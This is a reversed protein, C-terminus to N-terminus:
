QGNYQSIFSRFQDAISLRPELELARIMYPIAEPIRGTNIYFIAQNAIVPAYEGFLENYKNFYEMTMDYDSLNISLSHLMNYTNKQKALLSEPQNKLYEYLQGLEETRGTQLYIEMLYFEGLYIGPSENSIAKRAWVEEQELDGLSKFLECAMLANALSNPWYNLAPTIINLAVLQQDTPRLAESISRGATIYAQNYVPNIPEWVTNRDLTKMIDNMRNFDRLWALDNVSILVFILGAAAIFAKNVGQKLNIAFTNLELDESGKIVLAMLFPMIITPVPLQYPFSLQANLMNGTVAIIILAYLIRNQGESKLILKYILWCMTFIIGLLLLFGMAGLEVVLELTDNHVRQVGLIGVNVHSGNNYVEFFNGLGAGIFPREKILEIASGWILYREGGVQEAATGVSTAISSLEYVAIQWFPQFGESNFNVLVALLVFSAIAAVTKDKNWHLWGARKGRDLLIFLAILGIELLSAMWVARTRTYFTYLLLAALTLAYFWTSTRSSQPKFFFYLTLPFTLVMVQGAMNGNGFTSSPFSTQPIQDFLFLYQAIGILATGLSGLIVLKLVTDLNKESQAMQLGMLFMVFGTFWKNWKYVWFDPNSAWLLSLTGAIFLLGFCIRGPSFTLTCASQNRQMWLWLLLLGSLYIQSAISKLEMPTAVPPHTWAGVLCVMPITLAVWFPSIEPKRYVIAKPNPNNTGAQSAADRLRKQRNKKGM